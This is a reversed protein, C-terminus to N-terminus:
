ADAPSPLLWCSGQHQHQRQAVALLAAGGCSSRNIISYSGPMGQLEAPQWSLCAHSSGAGAHPRTSVIRHDKRVPVLHKIKNWAM